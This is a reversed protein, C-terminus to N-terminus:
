TGGGSSNRIAQASFRESKASFDYVGIRDGERFEELALELYEEAMYFEYPSAYEAGAEKAKEYAVRANELSKSRSEKGSLYGNGASGVPGLLRDIWSGGEAPSMGSLLFFFGAAMGMRFFWSMYRSARNKYDAM